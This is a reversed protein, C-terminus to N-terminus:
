DILLYLIFSLLFSLFLVKEEYLDVTEFLEYEAIGVTRIAKLFNSINEMQKFPMNSIEIKKISGPKICNILKCLVQGNKLVEGFSGNLQENIINEIWNRAMQEAIPDYKEAQKRALEADLGYGGGRKGIPTNNM